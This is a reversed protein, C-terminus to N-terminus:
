LLFSLIYGVIDHYLNEKKMLLNYYMKKTYEKEVKVMDHFHIWRYNQFRFVKYKTEYPDKTKNLYNGFFKECGKPFQVYGDPNFIFSKWRHYRDYLDHQWFPHEIRLYNSDITEKEINKMIKKLRYQETRFYKGIFIREYLFCIRSNIYYILFKNPSFCEIRDGCEFEVISYERIEYVLYKDKRLNFFEQITLDFFIKNEESNDYLMLSISNKKGNKLFLETNKKRISFDFQNDYLLNEIKKDEHFLPLFDKRWNRKFLCGKFCHNSKEQYLLLLCDFCYKHGCPLVRIKRNDNISCNYCINNM